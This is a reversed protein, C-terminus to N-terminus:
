KKKSEKIQKITEIIQDVVKDYDVIRDTNIILDFMTPDNLRTKFMDWLFKGPSANKEQVELRAKDEDVGTQECVRKICEKESGVIRLNIVSDDNLVFHAGRGVIICEGMSALGHLVNVLHRKFVKPSFNKGGVVRYMWFDKLKQGTDIMKVAEPDANCLESIGELIEQNYIALNMKEALKQAIVDGGSGYHFTLTIINDAIENNHGKKKKMAKVVSHIDAELPM